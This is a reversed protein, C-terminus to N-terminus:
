KHIQVNGGHLAQHGSDYLTPFVQIRYTDTPKNGPEGLDKVDIRYDFTGSENITASRLEGARRGPDNHV